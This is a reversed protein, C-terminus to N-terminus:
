RSPYARSAELGSAEDIPKSAISAVLVPASWAKCVKAQATLPAAILVCALAAAIRM